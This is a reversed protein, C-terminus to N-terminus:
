TTTPIPNSTSKVQRITLVIFAVIASAVCGFVAGSVLMEQTDMFVWAGQTGGVEPSAFFANNISAPAAANTRIMWVDWADYAKRLLDYSSDWRGLTTNVSIMAVKVTDGEIWVMDNYKEHPLYAVPDIKAMMAAKREALWLKMQPGFNAATTPFVYSAPQDPRELWERFGHIFCNIERSGLGGDQRVVPVAEGELNTTATALDDCVSALYTQSTPNALNFTPDMKLTGLASTDYRGIGDRDVPEESDLGWIITNYKMPTSEGQAFDNNFM